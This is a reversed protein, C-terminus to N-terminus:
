KKLDIKANEITNIELIIENGWPWSLLQKNDIGLGTLYITDVIQDFYYDTNISLLILNKGKNINIEKDNLKIVTNKKSNLKLYVKDYSSEKNIVKFNMSNEVIFSSDRKSNM